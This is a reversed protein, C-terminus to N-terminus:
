KGELTIVVIEPRNFVRPVATSERALGRSVILSMEEFTYLGNTYKPLLGQNPSLLGNEFIFPIRWQGGHAHGSLVIDPKMPLFEDIREPRHSLLITFIAADNSIELRKLHQAYSSSRSTIRNANAYREVDPDDIGAISIIEGQVDLFVSTGELVAVGYSEAIIKYKDDTDHNGSVYYCPYKQSIVEIFQLTNDSPKRDDFIDGVLMVADPQETTIANILKSQGEGYDCSHLDTVLVLQIQGTIKDTTINHFSVSLGQNLAFVFLTIQALIILPLGVMFKAHRTKHRIALMTLLMAVSGGFVSVALLTREKVRWNNKRAANKDRITIVVALLSVIAIYIFVPLYQSLATM